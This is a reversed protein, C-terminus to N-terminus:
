LMRNLVNDKKVFRHYFAAFVHIGVLAGIIYASAEHFNFFLDALKENKMFPNPLQHGFFFVDYGGLLAMLVGSLPMALMYLYLLTHVTKAAITELYSMNMPFIPRPNLFRWTIMLAGLIFVTVGFSEHLLLYQAKELSGKPFAGRRYILFFQSFFLLAILWHLTKTLIGFKESTNKILM